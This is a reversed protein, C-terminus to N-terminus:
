SRQSYWSSQWPLTALRRITSCAGSCQDIALAFQRRSKEMVPCESPRAPAIVWLQDKRVEFIMVRALNNAPLQKSPDNRAFSGRILNVPIYPNLVGHVV